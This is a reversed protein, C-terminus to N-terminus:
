RARRGKQSVPRRDIGVGGAAASLAVTDGPKPIRGTGPMPRAGPLPWRGPPRGPCRRRNPRWTRLVWSWMSPTAPAGDHWGIVEDGSKVGTAGPGLKEVVGALDSGEGSPFTAPFM